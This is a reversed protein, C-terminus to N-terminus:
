IQRQPQVAPDRIVKLGRIAQTKAVIPYVAPAISDDRGTTWSLGNRLRINSGRFTWSRVSNEGSFADVCADVIAGAGQWTAVSDQSAVARGGAGTIETVVDDARNTDVDNVVVAGGNAV